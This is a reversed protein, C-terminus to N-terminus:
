QGAHNRLMARRRGRRAWALAIGWAVALPEPVVVPTYTVEFVLSSAATNGSNGQDAVIGGFIYGLVTPGSLGELRILETDGITPVGGALMFEANAGFRLIRGEQDTLRPFEEDLLHQRYGGEADRVVSTIQNIFPMQADTVFEGRHRDYYQLSIGGFLLTHTEGRGESFLGVKASHYGNM